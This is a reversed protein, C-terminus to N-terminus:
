RIRGRDRTAKENSLHIDSGRIVGYVEVRGGMGAAEDRFDSRMLREPTIIEPNRTAGPYEGVLGLTPRTIVGGEAFPQAKITAIQVAGAAATLAALVFNYPPPASGLAKTVGLATDIIATTIAVAKQRKGIRKDIEEKKKALDAEIAAIATANGQAAEIKKAYESDLAAKENEARQEQLAGINGILSTAGEYIQSFNQEWAQSFTNGVERMAEGWSIVGNKAASLSENVKDFASQKGEMRGTFDEYAQGAEQYAQALNKAQQIGADAGSQQTSQVSGPTQLTPVPQAGAFGGLSAAVQQRIQQLYGKLKQVPASGPGFGAEILKEVGGEIEKTKEGIFDAGLEAQKKNVADISKLVDKYTDAQKKAAEKAKETAAANEEIGKTTNAYAGGLKSYESRLDEAAQRAEYQKEVQLDIARSQLGFAKDFDQATINAQKGLEAVQQQLKEIVAAAISGKRIADGTNILGAEGATVDKTRQIEQIRLLIDAQKEYLANIAGAKKREAVGRIISTNLDNQIKTLDAISAKELDIGRLYNPYAQLLADAAKKRDDTSSTVSKLVAINQNLTGIEKAAEQRVEAQAKNFTEAAYEAADFNESLTSVAVAIGLIIAALGFTGAIVAKRWTDSAITAGRVAVTYRAVYETLTATSQTAGAFFLTIGKSSAALARFGGVLQAVGGSLAGYVKILPGAAILLTGFTIINRKTSDELNDFWEVAAALRKTFGDLVKPIDFTKNITEGLKALSNRAEAGANVLANKIGGEVRPLAAAAETIRDVFQKATVGSNRIAEVSATGFAQQMLRSIVPMREALISVDEQLVRGKAIMQSFQRTVGDLDEATGGTSAIANAMEGLIRRAEEAALGVGQLRISGRVAQEFDLGPAKAAERLAEVEKAAEAASRGASEFTSTMALKLSEIEGAQKIAAAGLAALPASVALTLDSGLQSFKRGSRELDREVKKLSADFDKYLLGLRVNLESITAM